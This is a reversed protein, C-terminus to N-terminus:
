ESCLVAEMKLIETVGMKGVDTGAETTAQKM